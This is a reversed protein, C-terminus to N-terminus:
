LRVDGWCAQLWPGPYIGNFIKAAPFAKGDANLSADALDLEYYREVGLPTRKEYDTHIDFTDKPNGNELWCSRSTPSCHKYGKMRSYDCVFDSGPGEVASGPPKFIPGPSPEESHHVSVPIAVGHRYHDPLDHELSLVEQNTVPSQVPSLSLFSVAYTVTTWIREFVHM